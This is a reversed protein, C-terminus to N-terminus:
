TSGPVSRDPKNPQNDAPEAAVTTVYADVDQQLIDEVRSAFLSYATAHAIHRRYHGTLQLFQWGETKLLEATRRYHRWREGYRFFGEVAASIAVLLSVAFTAWTVAATASGNLNLTVLAPVLVGGIITILRWFYYRDRNHTARGEVWVLQDLWRSRLFQRRLESLRLQAILQDFDAQLRDNEGATTPPRVPATTLVAAVARALAQPGDALDVAEVLGSRALRAVQQNDSPEQLAAALTDATRGSGAVALVPRGGAVSREADGLTVAGGNVVVTVSPAEGAVWSAVDALWSSEDGFNDGPVLVLHTHNPELSSGADRGVASDDPKVTGTATVGILPFSAGLKARTRGILAMIGADTGGDIVGAGLADALPAMGEEFLPRLRTLQADTLGDAGGVLVLVPRPAHLGLETLRSALEEPRDVQVARPASPGSSVPKRPGEV